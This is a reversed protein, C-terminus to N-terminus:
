RPKFRSARSARRSGFRANSIGPMHKDGRAPAGERDVDALQARPLVGCGHSLPAFLSARGRTPGQEYEDLRAALPRDIRHASVAGKGLLHLRVSHAQEDDAALTQPPTAPAVEKTHNRCRQGGCARGRQIGDLRQPHREKGGSCIGAEWAWAMAERHPRLEGRVARVVRHGHRRRHGPLVDVPARPRVDGREGALQAPAATM